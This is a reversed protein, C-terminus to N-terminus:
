SALLFGHPCPLAFPLAMAVYLNRGTVSLHYHRNQAALPRISALKRRVDTRDAQRPALKDAHVLRSALAL